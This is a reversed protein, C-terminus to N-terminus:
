ATPHVGPTIGRGGPGCSMDVADGPVSGGHEGIL